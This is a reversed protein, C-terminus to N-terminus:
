RSLLSVIDIELLILLISVILAMLTLYILKREVRHIMGLDQLSLITDLANNHSDLLSLERSINNIAHNLTATIEETTKVIPIVGERISLMLEKQAWLIREFASVQRKVAFVSRSIGRDGPKELANEEIKDINERLTMVAEINENSVEHLLRGMIFSSNVTQECVKGVCDEFTRLANKFPKTSHKSRVTLLTREKLFVYVLHTELEKKFVVLPISVLLYGNVREPRSFVKQAKVDHVIGAEELLGAIIEFDKEDPDMFDIWLWDFDRTFVQLEQLSSVDGAQIENSKSVTYVWIM